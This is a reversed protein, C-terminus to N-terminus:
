DIDAYTFWVCAGVGANSRPPTRDFKPEAAGSPHRSAPPRGELDRQRRPDSARGATGHRSRRGECRARSYKRLVDNHAAALAGNTGLPWM